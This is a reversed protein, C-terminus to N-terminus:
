YRYKLLESVNNVFLILDEMLSESRATSLQAMNGGGRFSTALRICPLYVGVATQLPSMEPNRNM